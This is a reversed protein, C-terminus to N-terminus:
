PSTILDGVKAPAVQDSTPTAGIADNSVNSWNPVEDRTKIAFHYSTGPTLGAMVYSQATGSPGPVPQVSVPTASAFNASTIPQTSWRLDYATAQGVSGDDGPATWGLVVMQDSILTPALNTVASPPSTDAGGSGFPLAGIDVGGIGAGIAPSGARLHADFTLADSTVGAFLPDGYLSSCEDGYSTCLRGSPGPGTLSSPNDIDISSTSPNPCFFLDRDGAYSTGVKLADYGLASSGGGPKVYFINNYISNTGSWSDTSSASGVYAAGASGLQVFTNNKVLCSGHFSDMQIPLLGSSGSVVVTSNIITDAQAHGYWFVAAAYQSPVTSRFICSDWKNGQTSRPFDGPASMNLTLANSGHLLFTDRVFANFTSYDRIYSLNCEDCGVPSRLSQIDFLCDVIKGRRSGYMKWTGHDGTPGITILFRSRSINLQDTSNIRLAPGFGNMYLNFTCNYVTDRALLVANPGNTGGNFTVKEGNLTSNAIVCDNAGLELDLVGAFLCWAISDRPSYLVTTSNIKVGKVSIHQRASVGQGLSVRTVITSAPSSLNGVYAIFRSYSSGSNAPAIATAGYDGPALIAVDGAVLSANAKALTWPAAPTGPNTASGSPSVYYTTAAATAVWLGSITMVALILNRFRM